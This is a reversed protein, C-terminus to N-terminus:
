MAVSRYFDVYVGVHLSSLHWVECIVKTQQNIESIKPSRKTSLGLVTLPSERLITQFKHLTDTVLHFPGAALPSQLHKLLIQSDMQISERRSATRMNATMAATAPQQVASQM